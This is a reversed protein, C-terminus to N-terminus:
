RCMAMLTTQKGKRKKKVNVTLFCFFSVRPRKLECSMIKIFLIVSGLIVAMDNGEQSCKALVYIKKFSNISGLAASNYTSLSSLGFFGKLPSFTFMWFTFIQKDHCKAALPDYQLKQFSQDRVTQSTFSKAIRWLFFEIESLLIAM